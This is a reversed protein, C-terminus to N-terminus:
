GFLWDLLCGGGETRLTDVLTLCAAYSNLSYKGQQIGAQQDM